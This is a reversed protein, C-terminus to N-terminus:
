SIKNSVTQEWLRTLHLRTVSTFSRQSFINGNSTSIIVNHWVMLVQKSEPPPAMCKLHLFRYWALELPTCDKTGCAQIHSSFNCLLPPSMLILFSRESSSPCASSIGVTFWTNISEGLPGSSRVNDASHVRRFPSYLQDGCYIPTFSLRTEGFLIM